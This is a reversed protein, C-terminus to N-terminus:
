GDEQHLLVTVSVLTALAIPLWVAVFPSVLGAMGIQRSVETLLFFGIGGVMGTAVMTQIGGQRFSRLSVTAALLVMTLLLMPRSMLLQYQMRYRTAPLGSKEAVEILAPLQWFSMAIESGLADGVRERTLYTSLTYTEFQEPERLPRVVTAKKLEWYGDGLTAHEAEIREVFHGAHDFQFVTLGTLSLGQDAVARAQFVSQGDTGDQRLWAGAGAYSQMFNAERGFVEAALREAEARAAAALPNYLTVAAVGLLLSVVIGPLLFQWVSMGGARMVALESKRSLSLLAGLSGVLVAFSLLIETYAPLRLLAMWMLTRGALDPVRRSQRLLEVLDVMYILVGCVAFAGLIALLFRKAIYIRLLNPGFM